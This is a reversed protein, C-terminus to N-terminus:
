QTRKAADRETNTGINGYDTGYLIRKHGCLCEFGVSYNCGYDDRDIDNQYYEISLFNGQTDGCKPCRLDVLYYPDVEKKYLEPNDLWLGNKVPITKLNIYGNEVIGIEYMPENFYDAVGYLKYVKGAKETPTDKLLTYKYVM